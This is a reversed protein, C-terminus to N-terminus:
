KTGETSQLYQQIRQNISTEGDYLSGHRNDALEANVLDFAEADRGLALLTTTRMLNLSGVIHKLPTSEATDTVVSLFRERRDAGTKWDDVVASFEDLFADIQTTINEPETLFFGDSLDLGDLKFAGNARLTLKKRVGGMDAEPFLHRWLIEDSELPKVKIRWTFITGTAPRNRSSFGAIAFVFMTDDHWLIWGSGVEFGRASAREKFVATDATVEPKAM